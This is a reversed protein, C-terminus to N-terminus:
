DELCFHSLPSSVYSHGGYRYTVFEVLLPGEDALVWDKAFKAGQRSALIDM